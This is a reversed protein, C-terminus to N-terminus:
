RREVYVPNTIAITSGDSAVVHVRAYGAGSPLTFTAAGTPKSAVADGNWVLDVRADPSGPMSVTVTAAAGPPCTLADGVGAHSVGCSAVITPPEERANRMVVVHGNKIAALVDRETLAAAFVRV